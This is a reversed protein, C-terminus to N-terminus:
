EREVTNSKLSVDNLRVVFFLKEIKFSEFGRRSSEAIIMTQEVLYTLFRVLLNVNQTRKNWGGIERQKM